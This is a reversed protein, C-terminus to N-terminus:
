SKAVVIGKFTLATPEEDGIMKVKITKSFAGVNAANFVAKVYGTNAPQIETKSYDATTCGCTPVVEQIRIPKNGTNTFEFLIEKPKGQPIEGIEVTNNKWIIGTLTVQLTQVNKIGSEQFSMLSLALIAVSIKLTKMKISKKTLCIKVLSSAFTFPM